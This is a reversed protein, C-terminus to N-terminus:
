RHHAAIQEESLRLFRAANNYLIDRKVQETWPANKIVDIAHGIGEPWGMQDSGFLIRKGMGMEILYDYYAYFQESTRVHDLPGTDTYVSPYTMMVAIMDDRFPHGAHFLVARLDQHKALVDEWHTPRGIEARFQPQTRTMQPRTGSHWFIPVDNRHAVEYYPWLREDTPHLGNYVTAVEGIGAWNGRQFEVEFEQTTPDHEIGGGHFRGGIRPYALFREPDRTRLREINAPTDHLLGLVVNHEDMQALTERILTSQDPVSRIQGPYAPHKPMPLQQDGYVHLHVDIVPLRDAALVLSHLLIAPLIAVIFRM